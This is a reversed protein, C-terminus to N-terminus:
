LYIKSFDDLTISINIKPPLYNADNVASIQPVSKPISLENRHSKEAFSIGDTLLKYAGPNIQIFKDSALINLAKAVGRLYFYLLCKDDGYEFGYQKYFTDKDIVTYWGFANYDLGGTFCRYFSKHKTIDVGTIQIFDRELIIYRGKFKRIFWPFEPEPVANQKNIIDQMEHFRNIYRATFITGKIGTLKHAIFECGKLTILYCPLTRGISDKYTSKQFFDNFGIKAEIFQEEYRHLDRLLKSHEKEIMEAVELSNLTQEIKQM